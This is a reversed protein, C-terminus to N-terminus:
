KIKFIVAFKSNFIAVKLNFALLRKKNVMNLFKKVEKIDNIFLGNKDRLSIKYGLGEFKKPWTFSNDCWDTLLGFKFGDIWVTGIKIISSNVYFKKKPTMDKRCEFRIPSLNIVYKDELNSLLDSVDEASINMSSRFEPTYPYIDSEYIKFKKIM